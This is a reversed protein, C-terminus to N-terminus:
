KVGQDIILKDQYIKCRVGLPITLKSKDHGTNLGSYLPISHKRFFSEIVYNLSYSREKNYNNCSTFQGLIVGKIKNFAGSLYIEYLMRDIKYPEENIEEIFLIKDKYNVQYKSALLSTLLTLNGGFLEGELDKKIIPKLAYETKYKTDMLSYMFSSLTYKDINHFDSYVMPGHFTVLNCHKNFASHLATIDSYGVFIKPNNRINKYDIMDLIRLSGYGGRLAVIAKISKSKFFINIDKARVEDKGALFGSKMYCSKGIVPKFGIKEVMAIGKEFQETDFAPGAPAVIGIEDNFKLAKPKIM